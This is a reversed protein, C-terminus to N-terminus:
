RGWCYKMVLRHEIGFFLKGFPYGFLDDSKLFNLVLIHKLRNQAVRIKQGVEGGVCVCVCVCQRDATPSKM